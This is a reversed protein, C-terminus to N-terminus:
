NDPTNLGGSSETSISLEGGSSEALTLEGKPFTSFISFSLVSNIDKNKPQPFPPVKVDNSPSNDITLIAEIDKLWDFFQYMESVIKNRTFPTVSNYNFTSLFNHVHLCMKIVLRLSYYEQVFSEKDQHLKISLGLKDIFSYNKYISFSGDYASYDPSNFTLMKMLDAKISDFVGDEQLKRIVGQIARSLASRVETQIGTETSRSSLPGVLTTFEEYSLSEQSPQEVISRPKRM